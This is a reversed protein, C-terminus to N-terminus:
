AARASRRRERRFVWAVRAASGVLRIPRVRVALEACGRPWAREFDVGLRLQAEPWRARAASVVASGYGFLEGTLAPDDSAVVADLRLREVRIARLMRRAERLGTRILVRWSALSLRPLGRGRRKTEDVAEGAGEDEGEEEGEGSISARDRADGAGDQRAGSTEEGDAPPLHRRLLRLRLLRVDITRGRGDPAVDLDVDIGLWGIGGAPGHEDLRGRLRLPASLAVLVMAVLAGVIVLTWAIWSM